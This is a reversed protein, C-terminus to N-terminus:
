QFSASSDLLHQGSRPWERFDIQSDFNSRDEYRTGLRNEPLLPGWHTTPKCAAKIGGKKVIHHIAMGPIFLISSFILVLAIANTWAPFVVGDLSSRKWSAMTAVLVFSLLAPSVYQWCIKWYTHVDRKLMLRIDLCFNDLGYVWTIVLMETISSVLLAYTGGFDDFLTLIYLGGETVMPLGAIFLVLCLIGTFITQRPRITAPFADACCTIITQLTAFMTSLGLSLLMAFFLVAWVTSGSGVQTLAEPYAVFALGPGQSAVDEVKVELVHAMYGLFSFITFGAFISTASNALVVVMTDRLINNNFENYSALTILGGWSASLSYFIQTAADKWVSFDKLKEWKPTVFYMIGDGSGPKSLGVSLLITLVLYPFTSTVYVAKGSSQIGKALCVFLIFYALALFGVLDWKLNGIDDIGDTQRLVENKWYQESPSERLKHTLSCNLNTIYEPIIVNETGNAAINKCLGLREVDMCKDNNWRNECNEWPLGDLALAAISDYLYRLTYTIIVNYYCGILLSVVVMTYGLGKVIPVGNFAKVPGQSCFQGLAVEFFFIPLGCLFLCILYPILFAGGGNRYCLYPFRWINGLGVAYGIMSLLFEIKNGWSARKVVDTPKTGDIKPTIYNPDSNDSDVSGAYAMKAGQTPPKEKTKIDKVISM